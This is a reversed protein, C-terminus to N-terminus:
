WRVGVGYAGFARDGTVIPIGETLAQAALLRDFPDNHHRPLEAVRWAHWPTVALFILGKLAVVELLDDPVDLKGKARKIAIEWVTAASVLVENSPDAILARAAPPLAPDDDLWWLLAHTDLLARTV